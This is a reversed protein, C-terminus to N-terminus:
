VNLKAFGKVYYMDLAGKGKVTIKGRYTFTFDNMVLQHTHESINVYGPESSSEMRSALNVSDGWIDYAFKKSGVVGAVVPGSNIGIRIEYPEKGMAKREENYKDMFQLIELGAAVVDKAHTQNPVPLGGAAMYSDGITKIKELNYKSIILDFGKFCYDIEKVLEDASLSQTKLTFDKFDTFLITVSNFFRAKADGKEKLEEAVEMPLINLLLDDAKKKEQALEATKLSVLQQLEKQRRRLSTTRWMLILYLLMLTVIAYSLYAWWTRYWPPLVRIPYSIPTSWVGFPSQARVTFNYSGEFLNGLTAHTENTPPSWQRGNYGEIKYQYNIDGPLAPEIAGFEITISNKTHPLKLETPVYTYKMLKDFDIDGFKKRMEERKIESLPNGFVLAEETVNIPFVTGKRSPEMKHDQSDQKLDSWIVNENYIKLKQIQVIPPESTNNLESYNMRVLSTKASGTAVWLIGKSDLFMANQGANVDRIPYGRKINYVEFIPKYRRLDENKLPTEWPIIVDTKEVPSFSAFGELIALGMETGIGLKHDNTLVFNVVSNDPIGDEVNYNIFSTGDFRNFGKKISTFWINNYRDEFAQWVTNDVLGESMTYNTFVKGDYKSVGKDDTTFWINGKKDIFSSRLSNSVLGQETTFNTFTEGDFKSAGKKDTSFWLHGNKDQQINWVWNDPLGQLTTYTTFSKGDFKSVGGEQTGFWLNGDKDVFSSEISNDGLGQKTTYNTFTKGDYEYIGSGETSFWLHGKKDEAVSRVFNKMLFNTIFKGSYKIIGDGFTLFWINGLKDELIYRVSHNTLGNAKNFIAFSKGDYETVGSDTAFWIHGKKDEMMHWIVNDSLGEQTTFTTFEKGDYKSVGWHDTGIWINGKKDAIISRTHNSVLGDATTYTFFSQGNFKSIGGDTSFWINGKADQTMGFVKNNPLGESTTYNVFTQGDFKSVGGGYTSFWLNGDKDELIGRLYNSALGDDTTYITFVTGDYKALGGGDTAIWLNGTKDQLIRWVVGHPIGTLPTYNAFTQGNYKSIGVGDTAVWLNGERDFTGGHLADMSLGEVTTLTPMTYFIPPAGVAPPELEIRKEEQHNHKLYFEGKKIPINIVLPKPRDALSIVQPPKLDNKPSSSGKVSEVDAKKPTKKVQQQQCSSVIVLFFFLILYISHM